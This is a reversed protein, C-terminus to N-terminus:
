PLLIYHLYHVMLYRNFLFSGVFCPPPVRIMETSSAMSSAWLWWREWWFIALVYLWRADFYWLIFSLTTFFKTLFHSQKIWCCFGPLFLVLPAALGIMELLKRSRTWTSRIDNWWSGATSWLPTSILYIRTVLSWQVVNIQSRAIGLFSAVMTAASNLCRKWSIPNGRM